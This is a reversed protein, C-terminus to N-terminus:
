ARGLLTELRRAGPGTSPDSGTAFSVAPVVEVCGDAGRRTVALESVGRRGDRDRSLHVVVEVAVALQAHVADRSLGATVGLAEFRAPVDAATNAHITACAGEHGTNMAALLDTVEAGRVEGVVLRDPRMRLAQRVLDRLTIAGAGEVNAPRGELCVVHPHRIVLEHSDEVVVIRLDPPLEALLAALITTKGAGTGGSIVFSVHAAMCDVLLDRCLGPMSGSGVLDDLSIPTRSPVRLSICTGGRAVPSLAAHLRTGDDLRVDAFPAADDLRRGAASVLRQALRRVAADDEFRVACRRLGSGADVYVEDPANVLVDTVGPLDLLPQLPGAGVSELRLAEVIELVAADGLLRGDRRLAAAVADATVGSRHGALGPQSGSVPAEAMRLRVRDLLDHDVHSM